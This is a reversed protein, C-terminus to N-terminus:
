STTPKRRLLFHKIPRLINKIKAIVKPILIRESEPQYKRKRQYITPDIPRDKFLKELANLIVPRTCYDSGHGGFEREDFYVVGGMNRWKNILPIVQESHVGADDKCSHMFLTPLSGQNWNDLLSAIQRTFQFNSPSYPDGDPVIFAVHLERGQKAACIDLDIHPSIAFIAKTKFILGFKLAAYAGMSSGITITKGPSISFEALISEIIRIMAREVFFDGKEGTYYTGNNTAGFQDCLFLTNHRSDKLMRLRHFYGQYNKKYEKRDGWDGFFATFHVVLDQSRKKRIFVYHFKRGSDDVYTSIPYNM